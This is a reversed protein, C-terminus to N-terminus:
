SALFPGREWESMNDTECAIAFLTALNIEAIPKGDKKLTVFMECMNTRERKTSSLTDNELFAKGWFGANDFSNGDFEATLNQEDPEHWDNRTGIKKALEKLENKNNIRIM